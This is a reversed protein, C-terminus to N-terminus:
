ITQLSNTPTSLFYWAKIYSTKNVLAPSASIRFSNSSFISTLAMKISKVVLIGTLFSTTSM